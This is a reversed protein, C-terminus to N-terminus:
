SLLTLLADELIRPQVEAECATHCGLMEIEKASEGDLVAVKL